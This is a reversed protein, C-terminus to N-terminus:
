TYHQMPLNNKCDSQSNTISMRQPILVSSSNAWNPRHNSRLPWSTTDGQQSLIFFSWFLKLACSQAYALEVVAVITFLPSVGNQRCLDQSTMANLLTKTHHV